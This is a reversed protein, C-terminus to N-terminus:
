ANKGLWFRRWDGQSRWLALFAYLSGTFFGLVLLAVIWGIAIGRSSERYWIWGAFLAFGVYLDVLSVVGWPMGMLASGETAFNGALLANLIAAGMVLIGILSIGKAVKMQM